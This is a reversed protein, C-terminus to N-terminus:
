SSAPVRVPISLCSRSARLLSHRCRMAFACYGRSRLVLCHVGRVCVDVRSLDGLEVRQGSTPPVGRAFKAGQVLDVRQPEVPYSLVHVQRAAPDDINATAPSDQGLGHRAATRPHRADVHRFRGQRDRAQVLDFGTGLDVVPLGRSLCQDRFLGSLIVDDGTELHQLVYGGRRLHGGRDRLQNPGTAMHEEGCDVSIRLGKQKRNDTGFIDQPEERGPRVLVLLEDARRFQFAPPALGSEVQLGADAHM